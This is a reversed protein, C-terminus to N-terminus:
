RINENKDKWICDIYMYTITYPIEKKKFFYLMWLYKKNTWTSLETVTHEFPTGKMSVVKERRHPVSTVKTVLMRSNCVISIEYIVVRLRETNM